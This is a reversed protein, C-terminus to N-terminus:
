SWTQAFMCATKCLSCACFGKHTLLAGQVQPEITSSDPRGEGVSGGERQSEKASAISPVADEASHVADGSVLAALSSM